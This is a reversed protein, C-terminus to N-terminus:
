KSSLKLIKRESDKSLAHTASLNINKAKNNLFCNSATVLVGHLMERGTRDCKFCEYAVEDNEESELKLLALQVLISRSNSTLFNNLLIPSQEIEIFLKWLTIVVGLVTTSPWKLGGRDSLQILKFTPPIEEIDLSKDQTLFLVCENYLEFTKIFKKMMSFAAYGSIFALAPQIELSPDPCEKSIISFYIQLDVAEGCDSIDDQESTFSNLFEIFSARDKRVTTKRNFLKLINSLKLTRENELVQCVSLNYNSGSMQRYLGFHDEIPDNQVFSSLVYSFGIDETLYEVLKPLTICSHRFSTFTQLTLKGDRFGLGKWQGLWCVVSSLFQFRPDNQKLPM